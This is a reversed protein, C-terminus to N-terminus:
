VGFFNFPISYVSRFLSPNASDHGRPSLSSSSFQTNGYSTTKLNKGALYKDLTDAIAAARAPGQGAPIFIDIMLVGAVSRPINANNENSAVLSVRIYENGVISGTFNGPFTKIGEAQWEASAFISFVDAELSTYKSM